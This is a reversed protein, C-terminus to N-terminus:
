RLVSYISSINLTNTSRYARLVDTIWVDLHLAIISQRATYCASHANIGRWGGLAVGSPALLWRQWRHVDVNPLSLSLTGVLCFTTTTYPLACFM